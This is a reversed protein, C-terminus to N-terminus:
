RAISAQNSTRIGIAVVVLAALALGLFLPAQPLRIGLLADLSYAGAGVLGFFIALVMQTLSYEYGHQTVFFGNKWHTKFTAMAMAAFVGAAGLPTLFGLALSLGGGFEGLTAM